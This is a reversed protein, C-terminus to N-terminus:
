LLRLQAGIPAEPEPMDAPHLRLCLLGGQTEGDEVFGARRYTWGWVPRGRVKTPRVKDRNIFTVMGLEPAHGYKWRTAAVVARIMDSARFAGGERRFASCVWAGAWAHQTYEAFPWSTVWFASVLNGHRLVMCRGPPTFQPTGPKQRNYHRDALPLVASDARNSLEWMM